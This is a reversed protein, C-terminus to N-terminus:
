NRLLQERIDKFEAEIEDKLYGEERKHFFGHQLKKGRIIDNVEDRLQQNKTTIDLKFNGRRDAKIEHADQPLEIEFSVDCVDEKLPVILQIVGKGRINKQIHATFKGNVKQNDSIIKIPSHGVISEFRTKMLNKFSKEYKRFIDENVHM